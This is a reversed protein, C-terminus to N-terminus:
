DLVEIIDFDEDMQEECRRGQKDWSISYGIFRNGQKGLLLYVTGNRLRVRKGVDNPTLAIIPETYPIFENLNNVAHYCSYGCEAVLKGKDNIYVYRKPEWQPLCLKEGDILRQMAEKLKM